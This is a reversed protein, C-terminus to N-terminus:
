GQDVSDRVVQRTGDRDDLVGPLPKLLQVAISRAVLAPVEWLGQMGKHPIHPNLPRVDMLIWVFRGPAYDGFTRERQTLHPIITEVPVCDVLQAVAIIKGLPWERRWDAFDSVEADDCGAAEMLPIAMDVTKKTKAAHIALVGRYSTPWSRTEMLKWGREVFSAYPEWLSLCKM